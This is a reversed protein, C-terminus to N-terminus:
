RDPSDGTLEEAEDSLAQREAATTIPPRGAPERLEPRRDGPIGGSGGAESWRQDTQSPRPDTPLASTRPTVATAGSRSPPLTPATAGEPRPSTAQSPTAIPAKRRTARGGAAAELARLKARKVRERNLGTRLLGLALILVVMAGAGTFYLGTANVPIAINFILLDFVDANAASIGVAISFVIVILLVVVAIPIM